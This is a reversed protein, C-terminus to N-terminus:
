SPCNDLQQWASPTRDASEAFMYSGDGIVCVTLKDRNGLQDACLQLVLIKAWAPPSARRTASRRTAIGRVRYLRRFRGGRHACIDRRSWPNGLRVRILPVTLQEITERVSAAVKSAMRREPRGPTGLSSQQKGDLRTLSKDTQKTRAPVNRELNARCEPLTQGPRSRRNWPDAPQRQRAPAPKRPQAPAHPQASGNPEPSRQGREEM